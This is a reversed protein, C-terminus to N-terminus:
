ADWGKTVTEGNELSAACVGMLTLDKWDCEFTFSDLFERCKCM